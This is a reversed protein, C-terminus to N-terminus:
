NLHTHLRKRLVALAKSMQNKVTQISLGLIEAIEAYEFGDFRCLMFVARCREPLTNVAKQYDDLLFVYELPSDKEKQLSAEESEYDTTAPKRKSYNISLNHAIRYLYAKGSRNPDIKDANLWFKIFTEQTLDEATARNYVFKFIYYYIQPQMLFFFEKFAAEDKARIKDLLFLIRDNNIKTM